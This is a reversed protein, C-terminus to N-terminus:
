IMKSFYRKQFNSSKKNEQNKMSKRYLRNMAKRSQERRYRMTNSIMQKILKKINPNTLNANNRLYNITDGNNNGINYANFFKNTYPTARCIFNYFIYKKDPNSAIEECLMKQTKIFKDPHEGQFYKFM